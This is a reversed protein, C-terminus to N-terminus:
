ASLPTRKFITVLAFQGAEDQDADRKYPNFVDLRPEGLEATSDDFQKALVFGNDFRAVFLDGVVAGFLAKAESSLACSCYDLRNNHNGLWADTGSDGKGDWGGAAVSLGYQTIKIRAIM